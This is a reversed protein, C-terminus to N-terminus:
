AAGTEVGKRWRIFPNALWRVGRDMLAGLVGIAVMGALVTAPDNSQQGSLIVYGLGSRGVILEAGMLAMWGNGVGIRLGALATPLSTPVVTTVLTSVRGAGLVRSAKVVYDDVSRVGLEANLVCPPLVAVFVVFAQATFGPGFWLIALPIWAFPPIYRLVEFAPLLASRFGPWWAFAFGLLLGLAAAVVFGAGWRELSALAHGPLTLGALPDHLLAVLRELVAFPSALVGDESLDFLDAAIWWVAVLTLVGSSALGLTGLSRRTRRPRTTAVPRQATTTM